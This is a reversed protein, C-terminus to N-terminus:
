LATESRLTYGPPLTAKDARMFDNEVPIRVEPGDQAATGGCETTVDFHTVAAAEFGADRYSMGSASSDWTGSAHVGVSSRPVAVLGVGSWDSQVGLRIVRSSHAVCDACDCYNNRGFGFRVYRRRASVNPM